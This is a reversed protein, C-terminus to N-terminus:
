TNAGKTKKKFNVLIVLSVIYTLIGLALSLIAYGIILPLIIKLASINFLDQWHFHKLYEQCQRQVSAYDLGLITAGIKLALFFTVFSLWTNTFLSGLLAGARNIRFFSALVLSAIIGTGPMIGLCTGLGFGLAVKQPSDNIRFLKLYIFKLFRQLKNKIRIKKM